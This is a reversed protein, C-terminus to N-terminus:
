AASLVRYVITVVVPSDGATYQTTTSALGIVVAANIENALTQSGDLTPRTVTLNSTAASKLHAASLVDQLATLTSGSEYSIELDATGTAYATTAFELDVVVSDVIIIKGLGPAAILTVATASTNTMAQIQAPTLTMSTQLAGGAGVNAGNLVVAGGSSTSLNLPKGPGAILTLGNEDLRVVNGFGDALNSTQEPM